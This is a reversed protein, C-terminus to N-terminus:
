SKKKKKKKKNKQQNKNNVSEDKKRPTKEVIENTPRYVKTKVEGEERKREEEEQKKKLKELLRERTNHKSMRNQFNNFATQTNGGKGGMMGGFNKFMEKMNGMGPIDKMKTMMDSAEQMLEQESIDGNKIKSEIKSGIKNSLKMMKQPNKFLLKFIQNTDLNDDTNLKEMEKKLEDDTEMEKFTEQAIEKAMNGIKGNMMNQIHQHISSADPIDRQEFGDGQFSFFDNLNTSLDNSFNENLGPIKREEESELNSENLSFDFCKQIDSLTEELKTQFENESIAEFLKSTDGFVSENDVNSVISFLLLQLYKWVISKTNDSVTDTTFVIKFDIGKIFETNIEREKERFIDENQYLIDFFREPLTTKTHSYLDNVEEINEENDQTNELISKIGVHLSSGLEPFTNLLDPIFERIVKCFEDTAERKNETEM